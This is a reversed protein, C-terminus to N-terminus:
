MQLWLPLVFKKKETTSNDKNIMNNYVHWLILKLLANINLGCPFDYDLVNPM